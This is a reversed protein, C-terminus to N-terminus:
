SKSGKSGKTGKPGGGGGGKSGKGKPGGGGGGKSSKKGKKGKKGKKKNVPAGLAQALALFLNKATYEDLVVVVPGGGTYSGKGKGKGNKSGKSGKPGKPGGGPTGLNKPGKIGSKSKTKSM